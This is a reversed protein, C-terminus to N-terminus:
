AALDFLTRGHGHKAQTAHTESDDLSRAQGLSAPDDSDVDVCGLSSQGHVKSCRIKDVGVVVPPTSNLYTTTPAASMIATNMEDQAAELIHEDVERVTANVVGKFRDAVGVGHTGSEFAAVLAPAFTTDDAHSFTCVGDLNTAPGINSSPPKTSASKTNIASEGM